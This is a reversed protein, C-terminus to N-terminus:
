FGRDYDLRVLRSITLYLGLATKDGWTTLYRDKHKPSKKFMLIEAWDEGYQAKETDTLEKM